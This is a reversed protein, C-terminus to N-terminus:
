KKNNLIYINSSYEKTRKAKNNSYWGVLFARFINMYGNKYRESLLSVYYSDFKMPLVKKLILSKRKFLIEISKSSFHWLHRPVDFAAWYKGYYSADYSKYNPVAIILIGKPKLLRKLEVIQKELDYVHELVHWMTIVDFSQDDLKNTTSDISVGKSMAISKASDNPEVGKTIWGKKKAKVLFDGTGSGIDLVSGINNNFVSSILKVKKRLTYNKVLQYLKEFMTRSGDTHSIYDDSIYYAGLNQKMPKPTTKLLHYDTDYILDFHEGSVSHDKCSIFL